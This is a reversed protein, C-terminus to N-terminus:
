WVPPSYPCAHSHRLVQYITMPANWILAHYIPSCFSTRLSNSSEVRVPSLFVHYSCHIKIDSLTGEFLMKICTPLHRSVLQLDHQRLDIVASQPIVKLDNVILIFDSDPHYAAMQFPVNLMSYYSDSHPALLPLRVLSFLDLPTTLTNLTLPVNLVITLLSGFRFAKFKADTYYFHHNMFLIRLNPQVRSLCLQLFRLSETLTSHHVLHHPLKNSALMNMAMYIDDIESLQFSLNVVDRLMQTYLQIKTNSMQWRMVLDGQLSIIDKRQMAIVADINDMRKKELQVAAMFHDTGAKWARAATEVGSSVKLLIDRVDNVENYTALGTIKSLADTLFGRKSRTTARFEEFVDYLDLLRDRVHRQVFIRMRRYELLFHYMNHCASM